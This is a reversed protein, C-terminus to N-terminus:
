NQFPSTSPKPIDFEPRCHPSSRVFSSAGIMSRWLRVDKGLLMLLDFAYLVTEQHNGLGQLLNFSPRGNEDLAVIEGDIVTDNPLEAIGKVVGSFRRTFDKENRSWLQASRGAKRGIARFGDLKLEYRWERGEPPREASECLM